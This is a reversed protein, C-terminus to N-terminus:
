RTKTKLTDSLESLILTTNGNQRCKEAAGEVADAVRFWARQSLADAYTKLEDMRTFFRPKIGEDQKYALIDRLASLFLATAQAFETRKAPLALVAAYLDAYSARSTLAHLIDTVSQKAKEESDSSEKDTMRLATGLIGESFETAFRIFDASARAPSLRARLEAEVVDPPLREMRLTQVRSRVTILLPEATESLLFILVGAPPEELVKLLANQAQVTMCEANEIIYIKYASETPSLYVDEKLLRIDDVGLTAKGSPKSVTKVDPFQGDSIRRCNRCRHCPLPAADGDPRECNVAAAIERVMTHRGSGEPGVFLLAHPLSSTRIAESLRRKQKENGLIKRFDAPM